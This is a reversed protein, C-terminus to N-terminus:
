LEVNRFGRFTLSIRPGCRQDSSKPIRHYWDRQMGAEMVLLSGGCLRLQVPEFGKPATKPKFWIPRTAGVSVVAIPRDPDMEPSDDAHWGLHDDFDPYHSLFCTDFQVGLFRDLAEQLGRITPHWPQPQYTRANEGRGYTYPALFDNVYYEERPLNPTKVWDLEKSLCDYFAQGTGAVFEPYYAIPADMM